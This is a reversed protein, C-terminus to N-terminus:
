IDGPIRKNLKELQHIDIIIKKRLSDNCDYFGYQNMKEKSNFVRLWGKYSKLDPSMNHSIIYNNFVNQPMIDEAKDEVPISIALINFVFFVNITTKLM